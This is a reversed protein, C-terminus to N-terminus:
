CFHSFPRTCLVSGDAFVHSRVPEYFLATLLFTQSSLYTYCLSVKPNKSINKCNDKCSDTKDETLTAFNIVSISFPIALLQVLPLLINDTLIYPYTFVTALSCALKDQEAGASVINVTFALIAQKNETQIAVYTFNKAIEQYM